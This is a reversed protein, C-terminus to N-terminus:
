VGFHCFENVPVGDVLRCVLVSWIDAAIARLWKSPDAPDPKHDRYHACFLQCTSECHFQLNAAKEDISVSTSSLSEAFSMAQTDSDFIKALVMHPQLPNDNDLYLFVAFTEM